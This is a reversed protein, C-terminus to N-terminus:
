RSDSSWPLCTCQRTWSQEVRRHCRRRTTHEKIPTRLRKCWYITCRTCKQWRKSGASLRILPRVRKSTHLVIWSAMHRCNSSYSRLPSEGKNPVESTSLELLHSPTPLHPADTGGTTTGKLTPSKAQSMTVALEEFSFGADATQSTPTKM